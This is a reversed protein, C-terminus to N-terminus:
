FDKWTLSIWALSYERKKGKEEFPLLLGETYHSFISHEHNHFVFRGNEVANFIRIGAFSTGKKIGGAGDGTYRGRGGYFYPLVVEAIGGFGDTTTKVLFLDGHNISDDLAIEELPKFERDQM